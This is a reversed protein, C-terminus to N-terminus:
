ILQIMTEKIGPATKGLPWPETVELTVWKGRLLVQAFVHSLLGPKFGVAVFRCQFGISELMAAILVSKDDCDGAMQELVKEPTHLTEVGRIDKIYRVRKQVFNFVELVEGLLDKEPLHQVLERTYERIIPNKKSNDVLKAMKKLTIRIGAKGSPLSELTFTPHTPINELYM